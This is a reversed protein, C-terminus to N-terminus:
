PEHPQLQKRFALLVLRMLWIGGGCRRTCARAKGATDDITIICPVTCSQEKCRHESKQGACRISRSRTLSAGGRNCKCTMDGSVRMM